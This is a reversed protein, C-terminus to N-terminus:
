HHLFPNIYRTLDAVLHELEERTSVLLDRISVLAIVKRNQVVPLHRIGREKMLNECEILNTFPTVSVVEPTMVESVFTTGPNLHKLLVKHVLDRESIIGALKTGDLVVLAGINHDVMLKAAVHVNDDTQVTFPEKSDLDKLLERVTRTSM